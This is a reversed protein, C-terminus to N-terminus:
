LISWLRLWSPSLIPLSECRPHFSLLFNPHAPLKASLRCRPSCPEYPNNCVARPLRSCSLAGKSPFIATPALLMRFTPSTERMTDLNAIDLFSAAISERWNVPTKDACCLERVTKVISCHDFQQSLITSAKIWPSVFVAPVRVGLRDFRFGFDTTPEFDPM